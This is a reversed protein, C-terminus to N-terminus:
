KKAESTCGGAIACVACGGTSCGSKEKTGCGPGCGHELLKAFRSQSVQTQYLESLTQVHSETEPSPDGLFHFYLTRGDILPEVEILVDGIGRETLFTQCANSADLSLAILQKWLLQDEPRSRRIFTGVSPSDIHDSPTRALVYGMEVGRATRCIVDEGRELVVTGVHIPVIDRQSGVRVLYFGTRETEQVESELTSNTM